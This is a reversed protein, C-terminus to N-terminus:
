LVRRGRMRCWDEMIERDVLPISFDKFVQRTEQGRGAIVVIDGASAMDLALCIAERRDTILKYPTAHRKVGPEIGAIIAEPDEGRPNDSTVVVYDGLRSATEGVIPRRSIDREGGLGFVVYLRGGCVQRVAGLAKELGDSTHAFDIVCTVGNDLRYRELRGPVQPMAELSEIAAAAPVGAACALSLAQLANMVNYGGLAPLKIGKNGSLGPAKVEIALGEESVSLVRAFFDAEEMRMSYSVARKGLERRLRMGYEDDINIAAIGDDKMYKGFLARKASFYNEMDTHYELHEPTLNTFGIRDFSIGSIRGQAISHSSAEMVCAGCVNEVMRALLGQLDAGESTTHEAEEKKEGDDNIVTGALGAKVGASALIARTLFASTTKGNTGTVAFMTMKKSPYGHIVSAVEGMGSRVDPIIIQPVAAACRRECLLAPAGASVAQATFEHADSHDGKTAAFMVGPGAKRSDCVMGGLEISAPDCGDPLFTEFKISNKALESLLGSLLIAM